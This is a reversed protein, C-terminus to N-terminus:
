KNKSCQFCFMSNPFDAKYKQPKKHKRVKPEKGNRDPANKDCNMGWWHDNGCPKVQYDFHGPNNVGELSDNPIKGDKDAEPEKGDKNKGQKMFTTYCGEGCSDKGAKEAQAQEKYCSVGPYDEPLKKSNPDPKGKCHVSALGVCGAGEVADHLNEPIGLENSGDKPLMEELGLIDILNVGDNGM